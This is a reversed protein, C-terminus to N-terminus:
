RPFKSSFTKAGPTCAVLLCICHLVAAVKYRQPYVSHCFIHQSDPLYDPLLYSLHVTLFRINSNDGVDFTMSFQALGGAPMLMLSIDKKKKWCLSPGLCTSELQASSADSPAGLKISSKCTAQSTERSWCCVMVHKFCGGRCPVSRVLKPHGGRGDM